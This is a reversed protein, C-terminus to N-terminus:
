DLGEFRVMGHHDVNVSIIRNKLIRARRGALHKALPIAILNEVTRQLPRAGYRKDFGAVLLHDLVAPTWQLRLNRQALGERGALAELEMEAIKRMTTPSLPSFTVVGDIRNFFEPRFHAAIETIYSKAPTPSLGFPETSTAGLNSTMIVIASRFTTLRGYRDTLRGEDFLGLLLDFVEPAAKEIEDLLVVHFPQQRVQRILLGPDGDPPGLLRQAAGPGGYESMDLRTLRNRKEGHGFLYDGIARAMETKGVGTPGAFLLVGLPRQPDNLGAKFTLIVDAAARCADPQGIIQREFAALIEERRLPMEDRLLWPPLGTRRTFQELVLPADLRAIKKTTAYDLLERLFNVAPGPMPHYPQFRSFLRYIQPLAAPELVTRAGQALVKGVQELAAVTAAGTLPEVVILRCADVLAPLLRRCADLEEPTAEALLRVEGRRLYPVLFAGIGAAPDRGGSAVLDQLREVCLVGRIEALEEIMAEVREQWQGLYRMGAIIRAGSTQWFRPLAAAQEAEGGESKREAVDEVSEAEGERQVRRAAEVLLASKGVGAAGVLIASTKERALFTALRQLEEDRQWPRSLGSKFYRDSIPDAVAELTPVRSARQPKRSAEVRVILEELEVSAPPLLRTLQELSRGRLAQQVYHAVTEKLKDKANYSFFVGLLPAAAFLLGGGATGHVCAVPIALPASAFLQKRRQGRRVGAAAPEPAAGYEPRVSITFHTIKADELMPDGRWPELRHVHAFYEKVQDLVESRTLGFAASEEPEHVACAGFHGGFDKWVLVPFRISSM